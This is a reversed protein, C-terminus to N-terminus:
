RLVDHLYMADGTVENAQLALDDLGSVNLLAVAGVKMDIVVM